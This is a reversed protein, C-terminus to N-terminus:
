LICHAHARVIDNQGHDRHEVGIGPAEGKPTRGGARIHHHGAGLHVTGANVLQEVRFFHRDGGRYRGDPEAQEAIQALVIQFQWM